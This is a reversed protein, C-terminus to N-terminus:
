KFVCLYATSSLINMETCGAFLLVWQVRHAGLKEARAFVRHLSM